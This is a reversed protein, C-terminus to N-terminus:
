TAEKVLVADMARFAWCRDDALHILVRKGMPEDADVQESRGAEWSPLRFLDGRRLMYAHTITWGIGACPTCIDRDTPYMYVSEGCVVCATLAGDEVRGDEPAEIM